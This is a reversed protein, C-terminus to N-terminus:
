DGTLDVATGDLWAGLAEDDALPAQGREEVQDAYAKM